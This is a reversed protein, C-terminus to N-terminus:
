TLSLKDSLDVPDDLYQWMTNVDDPLTLYFGIEPLDNDAFEGDEGIVGHYGDGGVYITIDMPSITVSYAEDTKWQAYVTM